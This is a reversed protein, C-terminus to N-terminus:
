AVTKLPVSLLSIRLNGLFKANDGAAICWGGTHMTLSCTATVIKPGGRGGGVRGAEGWTGASVHLADSLRDYFQFVMHPAM